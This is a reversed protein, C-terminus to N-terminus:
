FPTPISIPGSIICVGLFAELLRILAWSAFVIVLGIVAALIKQRAADVGAKDGGSTIWQIGGLLLYLFAIIGAGVLILQIAGSILSGIDFIKFSKPTPVVITIEAAKVQEM